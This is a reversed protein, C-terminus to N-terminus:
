KIQYSIQTELENNELPFKFRSIRKMEGYHESYYGQETVDQNRSFNVDTHKCPTIKLLDTPEFNWIQVAATNDPVQLIRDQVKWKTEGKIKIIRRKHTCNRLIFRFASIEGEFEWFTEKESLKAKKAQTWYFWIFRSGKLMQNQNEVMVTNHGLTGEFNRKLEEECNYQYTGADLLINKGEVWIDLHLNDAQQPRDKHNGCRVFTLTGKDRIVYYGGIEFNYGGDTRSIPSFKSEYGGKSKGWWYADELFLEKYFQKGTLLLHMAELQPRYDRFSMSSFPFFLAGDNAGYNPLYGSKEDQCTLLFALSKYARQYVTKSFPRQHIETLRIGLTLLQIVVRHYNMSFQLFTGDPYIQYAVEQEFWRRGKAAWQKTQPIFPFLLDSVALLLTETIAHNNRVAIRSFNIHHYVHHLSWYIVPQLKEWFKQDFVPSDKYYYLAFCWNFLRISIEQSCRWNPGSNIPNHDIWSEIESKVWSSHNSGKSQDYRIIDLLYTFRSKEWVYKIDGLDPDFDPIKSWHTDRQFKKGTIPHTVWDYELGLNIEKRFFFQFVGNKMKSVRRELGETNFEFSPLDIRSDYFFGPSNAKWNEWSIFSIARPHQPHRRKLAGSRKEVEHWVRYLTYKIGM